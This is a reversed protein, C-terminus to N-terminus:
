DPQLPLEVLIATGAGTPSSVEISGGLAQVRDRLGILGTGRTPDAGGVGDDRISLHLLTDRQEVTVHAASAHAHKTTNTVAESAVYYAAVEIRHAPRTDTRIDVTVPIAARRALTRLAPGLGGESLISPHIGRAIERLEDVAGTLGDAMKGIQTHLEPLEPPVTSQALRMELGLTVLRQQTGDHLDREIRRRTDDAAVVIRARSATLAAQAEANAIATGILETFGALRAETDAPLPERRTSAVFMVGWLRGDVSVPVGVSARIGLKRAGEAAAGSAVDYDDVRAPRGTQFVLTNV